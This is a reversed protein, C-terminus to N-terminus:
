TMWFLGRDSCVGSGWGVGDSLRRLRSTVEGGHSDSVAEVVATCVGAEKPTSRVQRVIGTLVTVSLDPTFDVSLQWNWFQPWYKCVVCGDTESVRASSDFGETILSYWLWATSSIANHMNNHGLLTSNVVKVLISEYIQLVSLLCVTTLLETVTLLVM